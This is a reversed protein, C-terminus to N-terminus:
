IKINNIIINNGEDGIKSLDLDKLSPNENNNINDSTLNRKDKKKFQNKKNRSIIKINNKINNKKKEENVKKNKFDLKRKQFKKILLNFTTTIHNHKNHKVNIEIFNNDNSIKLVKVMYDIIKKEIDKENNLFLYSDLDFCCYFKTIFPHKLIDSLSIRDKPNFKIIKKILDICDFSINFEDKTYFSIKCKIIQNFLTEYNHANFPFIGFVIAYLIIGCCWIDIYISNYEKKLIM